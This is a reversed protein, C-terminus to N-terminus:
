IDQKIMVTHYLESLCQVSFIVVFVFFVVSSYKHILLSNYGPVIAVKAM